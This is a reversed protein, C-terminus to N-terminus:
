SKYTKIELSARGEKDYGCFEFTVKKIIEVNDDKIIRKKILADQMYKDLVAGINMLDAKRRPWITYNLELPYTPCRQKIKRSMLWETFWRKTKSLVQFHANRYANLNFYFWKKKSKPCRLPINNIKM